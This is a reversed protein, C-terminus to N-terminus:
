SLAAKVLGSAKGFDMQGSYKERLAAIVKGMDKMSNAGTEGIVGQIAAKMGAEDMQAPLFSAIVVMEAEEIAALDERKGQKYLAISDQRQKQMKQLLALIEDESAKERGLGRAEIDKDKLAAMMLRVTSLRGKDGAKMAEKMAAPFDDRLMKQLDKM